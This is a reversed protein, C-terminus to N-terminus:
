RGAERSERQAMLQLLREALRRSYLRSGEAGLHNWDWRLDLDFLAGETAPDGFDFCAPLLGAADAARVLDGAEDVDPSTIFVVQAGTAEAASVLDAILSAEAPRLARPAPRGLLKDRLRARYEDSRAALAARRELLPAATEADGLRVADDLSCFGDGAPGLEWTTRRADADAALRRTEATGALHRELELRLRGLNSLNAAWARLHDTALELQRAAPEDREAILALATVTAPLDHWWTVRGTLVNAEHLEVELVRLDVVVWRLRGPRLEALRELAFRIELGGMAPTGLNFSRLPRGGAAMADDFVGPDIQRYTTSPGVFVVDYGAGDAEYRDLKAALLSTAPRGLWAAIGAGSLLFSALGVAACLVARGVPSAREAEDARRTVAM